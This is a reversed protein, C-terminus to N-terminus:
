GMLAFDVVAADYADEVAVARVDAAYRASPGTVLRNLLRGFLSVPTTCEWDAIAEQAPYPATRWSTFRAGARRVAAEMSPEAIATVRHGAEVLRRATGLEVPVTGGGDWLAMLVQM